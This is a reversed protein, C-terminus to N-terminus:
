LLHGSGKTIQLIVDGCPRRNDDKWNKIMEYLPLCQRRIEICWLQTLLLSRTPLPTLFPLFNQYKVSSSMKWFQGALIQNAATRNTSQTSFPATYEATLHIDRCPHCPESNISWLHGAGTTPLNTPVVIQNQSSSYGSM